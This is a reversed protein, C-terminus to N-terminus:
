GCRRRPPVPKSNKGPGTSNSPYSPPSNGCSASPQRRTGRALRTRRQSRSRRPTLSGEGSSSRAPISSANRAAEAVPKGPMAYHCVEVHEAAMCLYLWQVPCIATSCQQSGSPVRRRRGAACAASLHHRQALSLDTECAFARRRVSPKHFPACPAEASVGSKGAVEEMLMAAPRGARPDLRHAQRWGPM